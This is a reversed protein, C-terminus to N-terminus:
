PAPIVLRQGPLILNPDDGIMERNTSYILPWFRAIESSLPPSGTRRELTNAAICWLSDGLTVEHIIPARDVVPRVGSEETLRVLPPMPEASAQSRPFTLFGVVALVATAVARSPGGGFAQALWRPAAQLLSAVRGTFWLGLSGLAVGTCAAIAPEM